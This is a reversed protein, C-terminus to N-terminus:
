SGKTQEDRTTGGIASRRELRDKLCRVVLQENTAFGDIAPQYVPRAKKREKVVLKGQEKRENGHKFLRIHNKPAVGEYQLFVLKSGMDSERISVADAHLKLALSKPYPEVYIVRQIGSAVIHRACAHCPFTTVYMTARELSSSGKRAASLIAEMEAHVARSFEILNRLDTGSLIRLMEASIGEPVEVAEGLRVIIQEYLRNKHYDNHCIKDGWVHCRNDKLGDDATYLGGKFKPVDNWGVSILEGKESYIAAGVSRSLCASKAGASVAHYMASEDTTPTLVNVGFIIDFYRKISNRLREDKDEDNRIFFDALQATDTVNQGYTVKEGEDRVIVDDLKEREVGKYQLRARRVEEPANVAMLWFMDGYVDRLLRVESPNKVSDIIHACRRGTPVLAENVKQYGGDTRAIAIREVCKESLFALGFEKRISNGLEQLSSIRDAGVAKVASEGVLEACSNIIDSMKYFSIEYSYDERLIESILQACTSAGAGIPGVLAVVIEDTRRTAFTDNEESSTPSINHPLKLM